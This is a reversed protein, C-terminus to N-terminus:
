LTHAKPSPVLRLLPQLSSVTRLTDTEMNGLRRNFGLNGRERDMKMHSHESDLAM